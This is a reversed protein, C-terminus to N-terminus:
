FYFIISASSFALFSFASASLLFFASASAAAFLAAALALSSCSALALASAAAFARCASSSLFFCIAAYVSLFDLFFDFDPPAESSPSCSFSSSLLAVLLSWDSSAESSPVESDLFCASALFCLFDAFVPLDLFPVPDPSPLVSSLAASLSFASCAWLRASVAWLTRASTSALLL